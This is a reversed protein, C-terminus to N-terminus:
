SGGLLKLLTDNGALTLIVGVIVLGIYILKGIDSGALSAIKAPDQELYASAAFLEEGIVTYDCSVAFFPISFARNSGGITFAGHRKPIEAIYTAGAQFPGVSISVAPKETEMVEDVYAGYTLQGAIYRINESKFEERKGVSEYSQEVAERAAPITTPYPSVAIFEVGREACLRSIFSTLSISALVAPGHEAHNIDYEGFCQLVPRGMETARGVAEDIADLAPVRRVPRVAKGSRAQIIFYIASGIIILLIILSPIQQIMKDKGADKNIPFINLM